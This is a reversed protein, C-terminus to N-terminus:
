ALVEMSERFMIFAEVATRKDIVLLECDNQWLAEFIIKLARICKTYEDCLDWMLRNVMAAFSDSAFYLEEFDEYAAEYIADNEEKSM